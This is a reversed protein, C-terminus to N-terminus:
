CHDHQIFDLTEQHAIGKSLDLKLTDITHVAGIKAPFFDPNMLPNPTIESNELLRMEILCVSMIMNNCGITSWGIVCVTLWVMQVPSKLGKGSIM